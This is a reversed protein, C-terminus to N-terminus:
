GVLGESAPKDWAIFKGLMCGVGVRNYKRVAGLAASKADAVVILVYHKKVARSSGSKTRAVVVCQAKGGGDSASRDVDYLAQVEGDRFGAVNFDRVVVALTPVTTQGDYELPATASRREASLQSGPKQRKHNHHRHRSWPPRIDHTEWEMEQDFPPELLYDIPGAYAMWSWKPVATRREVPFVIAQMDPKDEQEVGRRWLLSRHFLGGDDGDDFIGFGGETGYAKRLRNELGLIAVARDEMRTFELRSYQKYLDQFYAIKMGRRGEIAKQPFRPDGLFAALNNQMRGMTECRIGEGCEFYMQTETFYVSRRALAREQLVWGRKNLPSELVDQSFDDIPECVYFENETPSRAFTVFDRGRREGLFGDHMGTARSAALVCYAGSFVDEMRSAEENFDGDSGQIICISDIWLYRVGLSQAVTVAHQFTAPMENFPISRKFSQIDHGDKQTDTRWTCFPPHKVKDGWPHSLAIYKNDRPPTEATEILRLSRDRETGIDILRTPMAVSEHGRCNAHKTDCDLLWLQILKLGDANIVPELQPFGLQVPVPPMSHPSRLLTLVPQPPGGVIRLTSQERIFSIKAERMMDYRTCVRQLMRCFDCKATDHVLQSPSVEVSFGGLWFDLKLCRGCFKAATVDTWQILKRGIVRVVDQAFANDVPYTWDKLRMPAAPGPIALTKVDDDPTMDEAKRKRAGNGVSLLTPQDKPLPPLFVDERNAGTLLYKPDQSVRNKIAALGEFLGEATARHGMGAIGSSPPQIIAIMPEASGGRHTKGRSPPLDVVLLKRQVLRLLDGIASESRCEPDNKQLHATWAQVVHHVAPGDGSGPTPLEYYPCANRANGQLDQYFRELADNGHLLWIVFEFIICGMSWTDYLRSLGGSTTLEAEPPQYQITGYRTTTICKRNVTQLVHKKALGMDGIKLIGLMTDAQLFRLLNEPKLDGHRISDQGGERVINDDEDINMASPDLVKGEFDHLKGLAEALGMLQGLTEDILNANPSQKPTELWFDRLSDGTAWPFMFYRSNQRRIAALCRIINPHDVQNISALARAEKEWAEDTKSDEGGRNLRIEKIAVVKDEHETHETHVTVKHVWSFAGEKVNADKEIFPLIGKEHLDYDYQMRRFVPALNEWRNTELFDHAKVNPWLVRPFNLERDEPSLQSVSLMQDHFDRCWFLRMADRARNTDMGCRILTLFVKKARCLIWPILEPSIDDDDVQALKLEEKILRETVLSEGALHPLFNRSHSDFQSSVQHELIQDALCSAYAEYNFLPMRGPMTGNFEDSISTTGGGNIQALEGDYLRLAIRTAAEDPGDYRDRSAAGARMSVEYGNAGFLRRLTSVLKDCSINTCPIPDQEFREQAPLKVVGRNHEAFTWFETAASM